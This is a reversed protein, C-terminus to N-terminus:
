IKIGLAFRRASSGFLNLARGDEAFCALVNYIDHVVEAEGDRALVGGSFDAVAKLAASALLIVILLVKHLLVLFEAASVQFEASLVRSDLPLKGFHFSDVADLKLVLLLGRFVIM